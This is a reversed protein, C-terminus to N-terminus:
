ANIPRFTLIKVILLSSKNNSLQCILVGESDILGQRSMVDDYRSQWPYASM